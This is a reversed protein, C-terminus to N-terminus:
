VSIAGSGPPAVRVDARSTSTKCSRASCAVTIWHRHPIPKVAAGDGEAAEGGDGQEGPAEGAVDEGGGEHDAEESVVGVVRYRKSRPKLSHMWSPTFAKQGFLDQELTTFDGQMFSHTRPSTFSEQM